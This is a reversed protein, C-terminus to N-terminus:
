LRAQIRGLRRLLCGRGRFGEPVRGCLRRPGGQGPGRAGDPSVVDLDSADVKSLDHAGLFTLVGYVARALVKEVVPDEDSVSGIAPIYGTSLLMQRELAEGSRLRTLAVPKEMGEDTWILETEGESFALTAFYIDSLSWDTEVMAESLRDYREHTKTISLCQVNDEAEDYWCSGYVWRDIEDGGQRFVASCQMEDGERWINVVVGKAAWLDCFRDAPNAEALAVPMAGCLALALCVACALWRKMM